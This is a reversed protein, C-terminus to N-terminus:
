YNKIKNGETDEYEVVKVEVSSKDLITWSDCSIIHCFRKSENPKIYDVSAVTEDNLYVVKEYKDKMNTKGHAIIRVRVWRIESDTTNRVYGIVSCEQKESGHTALNPKIELDIIELLPEVTEDINEESISTELNSDLIDQSDDENKTDDRLARNINIGFFILFIVFLGIYMWKYTLDPKKM